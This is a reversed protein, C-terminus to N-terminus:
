RPTNNFLLQLNGGSGCGVDLVEASGGRPLVQALLGEILHRRGVHWWYTQEHEAMRDFDDDKM